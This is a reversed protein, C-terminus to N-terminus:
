IVLRGAAGGITAPLGLVIIMSLAMHAPVGTHIFDLLYLIVGSVILSILYSLLTETLPSQFPGPGQGQDFGSAFVIGYSLLISFVMVAALSAYGLTSALILGEDTPAVGFGILVSGVVTAGVDNLFGSGEPSESDPEDGNQSRQQFVSNAVSAGISLPVAQIIIKGMVAALPDAFSIRDIVLLMVTGAVLGVATVEIAQEVASRWSTRGVRFGSYYNVVVNLALTMILLVNLKWFTVTAGLTWMELTYLLPMAFLFGGAFARVLSVGEARFSGRPASRLVALSIGLSV